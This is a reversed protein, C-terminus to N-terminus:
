NRDEHFNLVVPLYTQKHATYIDKNKYIFLVNAAQGQLSFIKGEQPQYQKREGQKSCM